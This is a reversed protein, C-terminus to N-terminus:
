YFLTAHEVGHTHLAHQFADFVLDSEIRSCDRLFHFHMTQLGHSGMRMCHRHRRCVDAWETSVISCAAVSVVFSFLRQINSVYFCYSINQSSFQCSGFDHHKTTAASSTSHILFPNPLAVFVIAANFHFLKKKRGEFVFRTPSCSRFSIRYRM